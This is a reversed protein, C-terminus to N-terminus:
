IYCEATQEDGFPEFDSTEGCQGNPASTDTDYDIGNYNFSMTCAGGAPEYRVTVGTLTGAPLFPSNFQCNVFCTGACTDQACGAPAVTTGDPNTM